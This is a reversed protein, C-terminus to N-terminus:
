LNLFVGDWWRYQFLLLHTCPYTANISLPENWSRFAYYFMLYSPAGASPLRNLSLLPTIRNNTGVNDVTSLLLERFFPSFLLFFILLATLPM